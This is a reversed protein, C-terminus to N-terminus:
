QVTYLEVLTTRVLICHIQLDMDLLLPALIQGSGSGFNFRLGWWSWSVTELNWIQDSLEMCIVRIVPLKWTRLLSSLAKNSLPSISSFNFVIINFNGFYFVTNSTLQGWRRSTLRAHNFCFLMTTQQVQITKMTITTTKGRVVSCCGKAELKRKYFIISRTLRLKGTRSCYM